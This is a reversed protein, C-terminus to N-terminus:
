EDTLAHSRRSSNKYIRSRTWYPPTSQFPAFVIQFLQMWGTAFAAQSGALYLEWARQFPAGYQGRVQEEVAAFRDRWHTLTRAYHLRLNEVDIVSMGAPALVNTTVQGLTPPYAGPFIRRRTWANLPRPADRGIFHLLGRGGDRRITRRLVESLSGFQHLGVHELMGVSVFADFVGKVSRYDDDIFEVRDALGERAARARAYSLQERSLNFAKVEAGYHRAMHLALAGWGCGAEVVQDGPQLQLKRCVLDLKARQAAELSMDPHEFYACTYVLDRDLWGEYFSNGLDYHHHVNRRAGTVTNPLTTVTRMWEVWSSRPGETRSLAEVVPELGGRVDLRGFMYAEGFWLEPDVILGLLTRRDHIILDGIPPRTASYPSSGDWLEVRVASAEITRQLGAALTRDVM